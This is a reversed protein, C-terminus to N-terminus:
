TNEPEPALKFEPELSNDVVVAQNNRLKFVGTSVVVDGAKLGSTIAIFDGRTPGLQVLQQRVTRGAPKGQEAPKEEVVFVSDSYASYLVATAPVALVDDKQPLVTDVNVYMGPRLLEDTNSVTAQLRLNRTAPDIESNIATLRGEIIRGKLADSTIRVALGLTLESFYRQPLLFNVFIPNLSQLSVIPDGDNIVEGLNILRLGLRGAFPARITKKQITARIADAQAAAQKYQAEANDYDSQSVVKAPLLKKLRDLNLKSVTVNAEASRLQATELSIDQQVLLDKARVNTGPEFAIHVVKGTVESTVMVGQVADLTGVATLTSEWSQPQVTATTVTEPPPANQKGQAIMRKIQLGKIGGLIGVLVLVAVVTIIIRKVM